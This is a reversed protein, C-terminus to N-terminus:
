RNLSGPAPIGPPETLAPPTPMVLRLVQGRRLIQIDMALANSRPLSRAPRPLYHPQGAVALVIDGPQLQSMSDLGTTPLPLLRPFGLQWHLPSVLPLPRRQRWMRDTESQAAWLAASLGKAKDALSQTTTLARDPM